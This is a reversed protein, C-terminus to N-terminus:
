RAVDPKWPHRRRNISHRDQELKKSHHKQDMLRIREEDRQVADVIENNAKDDQERKEFAKAQLRENENQM